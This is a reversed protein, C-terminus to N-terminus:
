NKNNIEIKRGLRESQHYHHRHRHHHYTCNILLYYSSSSLGVLYKDRAFIVTNLMSEYFLFYGMWESVIIDVKEVPLEIEEMKGRLLIIKDEMGNAKVIMKALEIIGSNDM